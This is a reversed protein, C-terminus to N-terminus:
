QQSGATSDAEDFGEAIAVAGLDLEAVYTGGFAIAARGGVSPKTALM